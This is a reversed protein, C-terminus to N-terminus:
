GYGGEQEEENRLCHLVVRRQVDPADEDEDPDADPLPHPLNDLPHRRDKAYFIKRPM